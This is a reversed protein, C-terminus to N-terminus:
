PQAKAYALIANQFDIGAQEVAELGAKDSEVVQSPASVGNVSSNLVLYRDGTRAQANAAVSVPSSLEAIKNLDADSLGTWKQNTSYIGSGDKWVCSFSLTAEAM